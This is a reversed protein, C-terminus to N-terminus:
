WILEQKWIRFTEEKLENGATFLGKNKLDEAIESIRNEDIEIVGDRIGREIKEIAQERLEESIERKQPIRELSM